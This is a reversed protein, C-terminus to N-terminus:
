TTVVNTENEDKESISLNLTPLQVFEVDVNAEKMKKM